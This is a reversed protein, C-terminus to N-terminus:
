EMGGKASLLGRLHEMAEGFVPTSMMSFERPRPLEIPVNELIRGPRRSLVVVSDSLYIAESISHTVFLVTCSTRDWIRLLEANMVERTMADLAGFPEDMLIVEPDRILARVLAVRQQMGGSLERPYAHEFGGLGVLDLLEMAHDRDAATVKGAVEVPLLSNDVVTRWPLLVPRQFVVSVNPSPRKVVQGHVAVDGTDYPELGAVIRLLTSKGCGSPGLISVFSGPAIDLDIDALAHVRETRGAYVKELGDIRIGGATNTASPITAPPASM